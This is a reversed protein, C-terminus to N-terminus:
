APTTEPAKARAPQKKGKRGMFRMMGWEIVFPALAYFLVLAASSRPVIM